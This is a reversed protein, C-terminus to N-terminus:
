ILRTIPDLNEILNFYFPNQYGYFPSKIISVAASRIFLALAGADTIHNDKLLIEKFCGKRAVEDFVKNLDQLAKFGKVKSQSQYLEELENVRDKLFDDGEESIGEMSSQFSNDLIQLEEMGSVQVTLVLMATLLKKKM